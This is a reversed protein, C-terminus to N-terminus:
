NPNNAGAQFQYPRRSVRARPASVGPRAASVRNTPASVGGRDSTRGGGESSTGAEMQSHALSRKKNRRLKESKPSPHNELDVGLMAQRKPHLSNRWSLESNSTRMLFMVM